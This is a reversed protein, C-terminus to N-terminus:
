GKPPLLAPRRPARRPPDVRWRLDRDIGRGDIVGGWARFGGLGPRTTPHSPNSRLWRELGHFADHVDALGWVVAKIADYAPIGLSVLAYDWQRNVVANLAMIRYEADRISLDDPHQDRLLVLHRTAAEMRQGVTLDGPLAFAADFAEQMRAAVRPDATNGVALRLRRLGAIDLVRHDRDDVHDRDQGLHRHPRSGGHADTGTRPAPAGAGGGPERDQKAL